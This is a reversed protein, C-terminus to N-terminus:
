KLRINYLKGNNKDTFYLYNGDASILPNSINYNGEPIAVLKKLGTRTDILYLKDSSNQALEPFLGSGEELNDPVGCYLNASNAFVCKNAWTEVNINQRGSGINDGEANAIWLNPKMQTKTSYVSYLLRKGEPDWQPIFGRGEVVMSKFNENNQGVFYISQRDLGIGETYMAVIQNNPSWSPYVTADKEGLEELRKIKTGSENAIALWRNAPDLGISKMVFNDGTPSFSFDKWHSPLTIQKDTSFDYMIKAGDPYEIIARDKDPSWVINDVSYFIKDSLLSVKGSSDLRYFKGDTKNFYQVDSNNLIAGLNPDTTLETTKTLGGNAVQSPLKEYFTKDTPLETGPPTILPRTGTGSIPLGGSTSTSIQQSINPLNKETKFFFFYLAYGIILVLIAFIAAFIIKKYKEFFM